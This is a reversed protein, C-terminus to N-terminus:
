THIRLFMLLFKQACVQLHESNRVVAFQHGNEALRLDDGDLGRQHPLDLLPLVIQQDLLLLLFRSKSTINCHIHPYFHKSSYYNLKTSLIM